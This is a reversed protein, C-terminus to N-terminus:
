LCFITCNNIMKAAEFCQMIAAKRKPPLKEIKKKLASEEIAHNAQKQQALAEDLSKAKARLRRVTAQTRAKLERAYNKKRKLQRPRCRQNLLLRRLYKSAICCKEPGSVLGKCTTPYLSEYWSTMNSSRALRFEVSRAADSCLRCVAAQVEPACDFRSRYDLTRLAGARVEFLLASGGSNDYIPEPTITGKNDCYLRLTTKSAMASKWLERETERVHDQVGKATECRAGGTEPYNLLGYKREEATPLREGDPLVMTPNERDGSFQVVASKRSNFALGLTGLHKASTEVLQEVPRARTEGFRTEITNGTYLRRLLDIWVPPMGLDDMRSLLLNHPVSDYAKATAPARVSTRSALPEPLTANSTPRAPSDLVNGAITQLKNCTKGDLSHVFELACDGILHDTCVGNLQAFVCPESYDCPPESPKYLYRGDNCSAGRPESQANSTCTDKVPGDNKVTSLTSRDILNKLLRGNVTWTITACLRSLQPGPVAAQWYRVRRRITPIPSTLSLQQVPARHFPGELLARQRDADYPDAPRLSNANGLRFQDEYFDSSGDPGPDLWDASPAPGHDSSHSYSLGAM